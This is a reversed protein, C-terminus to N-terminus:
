LLDAGFYAEMYMGRCSELDDQMMKGFRVDGPQIPEGDNDFMMDVGDGMCAEQGTLTDAIYFASAGEYIVLNDARAIVVGQVADM